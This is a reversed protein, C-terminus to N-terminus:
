FPFERTGGTFDPIGPHVLRIDEPLREWTRQFGPSLRRILFPLIQLLSVTAPVIASSSPIVSAHLPIASLTGIHPLSAAFCSADQPPTRNQSHGKRILVNRKSGVPMRETVDM